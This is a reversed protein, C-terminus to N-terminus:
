SPGILTVSNLAMRQTGMIWTEHAGICFGKNTEV